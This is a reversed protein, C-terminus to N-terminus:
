KLFRAFLGSAERVQVNGKGLRTELAVHVSRRKGFSDVKMWENPNEELVGALFDYRALPTFLRPMDWKAQARM